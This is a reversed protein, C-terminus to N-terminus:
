CRAVAERRIEGMDSIIATLRAQLLREHQDGRRFLNRLSQVGCAQAIHILRHLLADDGLGFGLPECGRMLGDRFHDIDVIKRGLRQRRNVPLGGVHM